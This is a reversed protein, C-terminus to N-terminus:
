ENEISSLSITRSGGPLVAEDRPRKRAASAMPCFHMIASEWLPNYESHSYVSLAWVNLFELVRAVYAPGGITKVHNDVNGVTEAIHSNARTTAKMMAVSPLMVSGPRENGNAARVLLARQVAAIPRWDELLSDNLGRQTFAFLAGTALCAGGVVERWAVEISSPAIACPITGPQGDSLPSTEWCPNGNHEVERGEPLWPENHLAVFYLRKLGVIGDTPKSDHTGMGVRLSDVVSLMSFAAEFRARMLASPKPEAKYVNTQIAECVAATASVMKGRQEARFTPRQYGSRMPSPALRSSPWERQLRQITSAVEHHAVYFPGIKKESMLSNVVGGLVACLAGHISLVVQHEQAHLLIIHNCADWVSLLGRDYGKLPCLRAPLLCPFGFALQFMRLSAVDFTAHEAANAVADLIIRMSKGPMPSRQEYENRCETLLHTVREQMAVAENAFSDDGYAKWGIDSAALFFQAARGVRERDITTEGDSM